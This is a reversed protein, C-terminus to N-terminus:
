SLRLEKIIDEDVDDGLIINNLISDDYLYVDQPVYCMHNQIQKTHSIKEDNYLIEATADYLGILINLLTTKGSGSEGKIGYIKNKEIKFNLNNFIEKDKFSFNLNKFELKSFRTIIKKPYNSKIENSLKSSSILETITKAAAANRKNGLMSRIFVDKCSNFYLKGVALVGIFTIIEHTQKEEMISFIILVGISFVM